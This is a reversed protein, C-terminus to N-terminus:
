MVRRGRGSGQLGRRHGYAGLRNTCNQEGAGRRDGAATKESDHTRAVIGGASGKTFGMQRSRSRRLDSAAAFGPPGDQNHRWAANERGIIEAKAHARAM